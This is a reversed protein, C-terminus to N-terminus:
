ELEVHATEGIQSADRVYPKRKERGFWFIAIPAMLMIAGLILLVVVFSPLGGGPSATTSLAEQGRQGGQADLAALQSFSTSSGIASPKPHVESGLLESITASGRNTARDAFIGFSSSPQSGQVTLFGALAKVGAWQESGVFEIQNSPLCFSRGELEVTMTARIGLHGFAWDPGTGPDPPFVDAGTRFTRGSSQQFAANVASTMATQYAGDPNTPTKGTVAWPPLMAQAYSHYDIFAAIHGPGMKGDKSAHLSSQQRKQLYGSAAQTEPESFASPGIFVQTCPSHLQQDYYADNTVGFTLGWNRNADVGAVHGHCLYDTRNSRTKRWMRNVEWSYVYGDPNVPILLTFVFDQLYKQVEASSSERVLAGAIYLVAAPAIWERAHIGGELFICPKDAVNGSHHDTIELVQLPRGEWSRGIERLVVFRPNEQALQAMFRNIDHLNRYDKFFETADGSWPTPPPRNQQNTQHCNNGSWPEVLSLRRAGPAPM